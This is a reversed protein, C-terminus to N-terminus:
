FVGLAALAAAVVVILVVLALLLQTRTVARGPKRRALDRRSCSSIFLSRDTM